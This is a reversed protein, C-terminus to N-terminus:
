RQTPQYPVGPRATSPMPQGPAAGPVGSRAYLRDKIIQTIDLGGASWVISKNIDRLISEPTEAGGPQDGSYRLVVGIGNAAAVYQVQQEIEQYVTHYIKAEQELFEKRQLAVQVQLDSSRKAIQEELNKYDPSGPQYDKLSESLSKITDRERKVAEEAGKVKAELDAMMAKFRPHDKFVANVDLLAIGTAPRQPAAAPPAAPRTQASATSFSLATALLGAAMALLLYSKTV